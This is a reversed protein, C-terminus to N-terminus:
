VSKCVFYAFRVSAGYSICKAECSVHGTCLFFFPISNAQGAALIVDNYESLEYIMKNVIQIKQHETIDLVAQYGIPFVRDMGLLYGNPETSICGVQYSNCIFLQRLMNQLTFKGQASSTGMISIVPKDIHYLKNFNGFPVNDGTLQPWYVEINLPVSFLQYQSLADYSYINVGHSIAEHILAYRIDTEMIQNLQGCHGLILTDIERWPIQEVNQIVQEREQVDANILRQCSSGIRGSYKVDHVSVIEFSLSEQFRILAHMEKNSPFLSARNIKFYKSPYVKEAGQPLYIKNVSNAELRDMLEELGLEEKRMVKYVIATVHACAISNGGFLVYLPKGWPIKQQVGKSRINVISGKVFEFCESKKIRESTEVGIVCDFAAPYSICEENDFASM